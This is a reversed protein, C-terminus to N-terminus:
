MPRSSSSTYLLLSHMEILTPRRGPYEAATRSRELVEKFLWRKRRSLIKFPKTLLGVISLFILQLFACFSLFITQAEQAKQPSFWKQPLAM